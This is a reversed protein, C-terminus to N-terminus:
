CILNRRNRLLILLAILGLIISIFQSVTLVRFMLFNSEYYRFGEIIFRSVSYLLIFSWFLFGDFRKRKYKYLASLIFFIILASISSYLQTPIVPLSCQATQPILGAAVHQTFVPPNNTAPFSIGFRPSIKGYCCGNLFCGIRGIAIGICVSPSIIDAIKFIPLKNKKLFWIAVFFALILGGYFVLGGEWIKFIDLLHDKYYNRNLIVFLIRAGLIASVIIYLILDIIKNKEIGERKARKIALYTGVIFSLAVMVGYSYINIPGISFLIRYM